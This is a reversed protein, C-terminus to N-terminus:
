RGEDFSRDMFEGVRMSVVRTIRAGRPVSSEQL